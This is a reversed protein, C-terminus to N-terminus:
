DVYDLVRKYAKEYQAVMTEISFHERVKKALQEARTLAAAQDAFINKLKAALAQEDGPKFLLGDVGDTIIEILGDVRAAIVPIGTLAAELVVIGLGEWRSALIFIDLGQLFQPVDSRNGALKVREGLSLNKIETELNSRESGEGVIECVCDKVLSVAKILTSFDKQKALRGVSGIKLPKNFQPRTFTFRTLDVGNHIVKIKEKAFGYRKQADQAVAESVAIVLSAFAATVRKALTVSFAEDKNLNHETSVVPIGMLGAFFRGYIDGGLHTHVLDPKVFRITRWLKFLNILDFQGRKKLIILEVGSNKIEEEWLGGRKFCVVTLSFLQKNTRQVIDVLLREAGGPDLTPIIHLIKVPRHNKM